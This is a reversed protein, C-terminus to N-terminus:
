AVPGFGGERILSQRLRIREEHNLELLAVTARGSPTLGLIRPGDWRFHVSWVDIRPNFLAVVIQTDPDIASLNPGKKRNCKPCSLCLNAASDDRRHQVAIIHDVNFTAEYGSQPL